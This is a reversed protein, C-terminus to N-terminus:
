VALYQAPVVKPSMMGLSFYIQMLDDVSMELHQVKEFPVFVIGGSMPLPSTPIYVAVCEQGAFQYKQPSALLALFGGGHAQGFQCFVVSMAKMASSDDKKMMGVVQSVTRYISNFVPIRDIWGNFTEVVRQRASSKVFLGVTWIGVLVLAWGIVTAIAHSKETRLISLGASELTRGVLSDPGVWGVLISGFWGIIAMTLALPLIVFLGAMFTSVVGQKWLWTVANRM